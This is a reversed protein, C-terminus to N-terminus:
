SVFLKPRHNESGSSTCGRLELAQEESADALRGVWVISLLQAKASHLQDIELLKYLLQSWRHQQSCTALSVPRRPPLMHLCIQLWSDPVFM